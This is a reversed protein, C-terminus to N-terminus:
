GMTRITKDNFLKNILYMKDQNMTELLKTFIVLSISHLKEGNYITEIDLRALWQKIPESNLNM